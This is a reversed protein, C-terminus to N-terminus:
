TPRAWAWAAMSSCRTSHPPGAKPSASQPPRTRCRGLLRGPIGTREHLLRPGWYLSEPEVPWGFATQPSGPPRSLHEFAGHASARLREAAYINVGYFDLPESIMELDGPEVCPMEDGFMEVGDEPYRGLCVPDGFWSNSWLSRESRFMAHRVADIDSEKPSGPIFVKGVPAWGVVPLLKARERIVRVAAGHALLAHHSSRLQDSFPLKMGPAHKGNGYGLELFIQPENITVWHQVRDSLRDVIVRTYAEFWDVIDRNLWGGRHHLELPLDWHYLTLWPQIGAELLLDVLRDYLGLGQESTEGTGAPLVRPWSGSFRYASLGLDAMLRVDQEMREAHDCARAGTEGRAVAGERECFQDWISRGGGTLAPSGEIQYSSTSAGWIFGSPFEL